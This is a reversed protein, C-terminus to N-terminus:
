ISKKFYPPPTRNEADFCKSFVITKVQNPTKNGNKDNKSNSNKRSVSTSGNKQMKQTKPPVDNIKQPSVSKIQRVRDKESSKQEMKQEAYEKKLRSEKEDDQKIVSIARPEIQWPQIVLTKKM